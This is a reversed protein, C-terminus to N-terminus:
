RGGRFEELTAHLRAVESTLVGLIHAAGDWKRAIASEELQGALAVTARAGFNSALGKLSHAARELTTEDRGALAQRMEALLSPSDEDFVRVFEKFLEVDGGLRKLSGDYDIVTGQRDADCSISDNDQSPGPVSSADGLERRGLSEVLEILKAADIPKALYADMGAELCTERDGAASHTTLAIIPVRRDQSREHTRIARTADYGNTRPMHVDMLVVDFTGRLACEAAERGDGAITVRHGRRQLVNRIVKQNAPTDDAVLISLREASRVRPKSEADM